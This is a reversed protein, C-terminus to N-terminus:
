SLEREEELKKLEKAIVELLNIRPKLFWDISVGTSGRMEEITWALTVEYGENTMKIEKIRM